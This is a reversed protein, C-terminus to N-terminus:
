YTWHNGIAWLIFGARHAPCVAEEKQLPGVEKSLKRKLCGRLNVQCCPLRSASALEWIRWAEKHGAEKVLEEKWEDDQGRSRRAVGM